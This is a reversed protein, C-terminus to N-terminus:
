SWIDKFFPGLPSCFSPYSYATCMNSMFVILSCLVCAKTQWITLTTRTITAFMHGSRTLKIAIIVGSVDDEALQAPISHQEAAEEEELESEGQTSAESPETQEESDAVSSQTSNDTAVGHHPGSSKPEAGDHSTQVREPLTHKTAAFVAPSNIPWYTM